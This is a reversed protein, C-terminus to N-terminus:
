NDVTNNLFRMQTQDKLYSCSGIKILLNDVYKQIEYSGELPIKSHTTSVLTKWNNNIIKNVELDLFYGEGYTDLKVYFQPKCNDSNSNCIKYNYSNNQLTEEIASKLSPLGNIRLDIACDTEMTNLSRNSNNQKNVNTIKTIRNLSNLVVNKFYEPQNKFFLHNDHVLLLESNQISKQVRIIDQPTYFEDESGIILSVPIKIMAFEKETYGGPASWIPWAKQLLELGDLHKETYHSIIKENTILSNLWAQLNGIPKNGYYKELGKYYHTLDRLIPAAAIAIVASAKNPFRIAFNLAFIGGDSYGLLIPKNIKKLKIFENLDSALIDYDFMKVPNKTLGHGRSDITWIQFNYGELNQILSTFMNSTLSGGHLLIIPQANQNGRVTFYMNLPGMSTNLQAFGSQCSNSCLSLENNYIRTENNEARLFLSSLIILLSTFFKLSVKFGKDDFLSFM